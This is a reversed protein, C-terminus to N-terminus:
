TFTEHHPTSGPPRDALSRLPLRAATRGPLLGPVDDLGGLLRGAVTFTAQRGHPEVLFLLFAALFVAICGLIRTSSM